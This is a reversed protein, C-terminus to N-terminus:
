RVIKVTTATGNTRIDRRLYLGKEHASSLQRGQLDFYQSTVIESNEDIGIGQIGSQIASIKLADFHWPYSMSKVTIKHEGATLKVNQYDPTENYVFEIDDKGGEKPWFYLVDSPTNDDNLTSVWLSKDALIRNFEAGAPDFVEPVAPRLPQNAPIVTEGDIELKMSAAYAKPWNLSPNNEVMYGYGPTAGTSAVRGYESWPVSHGVSISVEIDEDVNVYYNYFSGWNAIADDETIVHNADDAIIGSFVNWARDGMDPLFHSGSAAADNAIIVDSVDNRYNSREFQAPQEYEEAVPANEDVLYVLHGGPKLTVKQDGSVEAKEGDTKVQTLKSSLGVTVNQNKHIDPNVIMLYMKPGNQLLSVAVGQGDASVSTVGDPLMEPTLRVCGVPTTAHTYGVHVLKAGLFVETMAHIDKNVAQVAYWVPTKKNELDIPADYYVYGDYPTPCKYTFYQIGQAGYALSMFVQVRLHDETPTPYSEGPTGCNSAVSHGFSWFPQNYYKAMKSVVELNKFYDPKLFIEGTDDNQRVPYYDFSVTGTGVQRVFEQVYNEYSTAGIAAMPTSINLLNGYFMHEDDYQKISLLKKRMDPFHRFHPEDFIFYGALRPANKYKAALEPNNDMGAKVIMWLDLGEFLDVNVSGNGATGGPFLAAEDIAPWATGQTCTFGCDALEQYQRKLEMLGMDVGNEIGFGGRYDVSGWAYVPFRDGTPNTYKTIEPYDIQKSQHALGDVASRNFDEAEIVTEAGATLTVDKYASEQGAWRLNHLKLVDGASLGVFEIDQYQDPYNGLRPTSTRLKSIDYSYEQWSGAVSFTETVTRSDTRPYAPTGPMGGNYMTLKFGSLQATSIYDFSLFGIDEPWAETNTQTRVKYPAKTATLTYVKSGADYEVTLGSGAPATLTIPINSAIASGAALLAIAAATLRLKM